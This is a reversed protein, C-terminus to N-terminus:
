DFFGRRQARQKKKSRGQQEVKNRKAAQVPKAPAPKRQQAASGAKSPKAARSQAVLKLLLRPPKSVDCPEAGLRLGADIVDTRGSVAKRLADEALILADTRGGPIDPLYPERRLAYEALVWDVVLKKLKAYKSV